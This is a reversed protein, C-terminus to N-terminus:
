VEQKERSRTNQHRMLKKVDRQTETHLGEGSCVTAGEAGSPGTGGMHTNTSSRWTLGGDQNAPTHVGLNYKATSPADPRFRAHAAGTARCVLNEGMSAPLWKIRSFVLNRVIEITRVEGQHLLDVAM